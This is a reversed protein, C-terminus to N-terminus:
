SCRDSFICLIIDKNTKEFIKSQRCLTGQMISLVPSIFYSRAAFIHEDLPLYLFTICSIESVLHLSHPRHRSLFFCPHLGWPPPPCPTGLPGPTQTPLLSSNNLSLLSYFSTTRSLFLLKPSPGPPLFKHVAGCPRLVSRSVPAGKLSALPGWLGPQRGWAQCKAACPQNGACVGGTGSGVLPALAGSGQGPTLLQKKRFQKLSLFCLM